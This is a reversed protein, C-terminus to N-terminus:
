ELDGKPDMGIPLHLSVPNLLLSSDPQSATVTFTKAMGVPIEPGPILRRPQGVKLCIVKYVGEWLDTM